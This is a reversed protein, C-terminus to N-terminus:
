LMRGQEDTLSVSVVQYKLEPLESLSKKVLSKAIMEDGEVEFIASLGIVEKLKLTIGEIQKQDLAEVVAKVKPCNVKLM